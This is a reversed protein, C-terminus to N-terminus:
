ARSRGFGAVTAPKLMEFVPKADQFLAKIPKRLPYDLEVNADDFFLM